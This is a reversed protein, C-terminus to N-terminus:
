TVSIDIGGLCDNIFVEKPLPAVVGIKKKHDYSFLRWLINEGFDIFVKVESKRWNYLIRSQSYWNIQYVLPSSQIPNSTFGVNFHSKDLENKCGDIIWVMQKYFNERSIREEGKIPSHQFEIVLGFPTKVDAIHKEGTVLNTHSIEQWEKPFHSKWERHWETESEWWPDCHSISKHAWHWVKVKGCKAIMESGCNFCVGKGNPYPEVKEEKILAFKM